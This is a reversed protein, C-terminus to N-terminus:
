TLFNQNVCNRTVELLLKYIKNILNQLHFLLKIRISRVRSASGQVDLPLEYTMGLSRALSFYVFGLRLYYVPGCNGPLHSVKSGSFVFGM